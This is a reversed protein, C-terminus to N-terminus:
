GRKLRSSGYWGGLLRRADMRAGKSVIELCFGSDNKGSTFKVLDKELQKGDSAILDQHCGGSVEGRHRQGSEQSGSSWGWPIEM